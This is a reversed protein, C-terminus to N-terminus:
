FYVKVSNENMVKAQFEQKSNVNKVTIYEGNGGDQMAVGKMSVYVGKGSAYVEVVQGKRVSPISNVHNWRIPSGPSISGTFEYGELNVETSIVRVNQRLVDTLRTELMDATLRNGRNLARSAVYIEKMHRCRVPLTLPGVKGANTMIMFRVSSSPSPRDPVAQILELSWPGVIERAIWHPAEVEIKGKVGFRHLLAAGLRVEFDAKEILSVDSTVKASLTAATGASLSTPSALLSKNAYASYDLPSLLDDIDALLPLAGGGCLTVFAVSFLKPNAFMQMM